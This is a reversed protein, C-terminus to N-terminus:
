NSQLLYEMENEDFNIFLDLPEPSKEGRRPEIHDFIIDLGCLVRCFCIEGDTLPIDRTSAELFHSDDLDHIEHYRQHRM